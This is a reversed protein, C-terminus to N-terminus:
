LVASLNRALGASDPHRPLVIGGLCAFGLAGLNAPVTKAAREANLALVLIIDFLSAAKVPLQVLLRYRALPYELIPETSGPDIGM